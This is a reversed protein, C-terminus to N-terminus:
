RTRLFAEIRAGFPGRRDVPLDNHGYGEAVILQTPGAFAAGLQEGHRLPVIRDQDGHLILVPVRVRGALGLNDFDHRLFWGIPLWPYRERGAQAISVPPARLILRDVHGAAALHVACFSGLSSGAATVPLGPALERARRVAAEAAAFFAAKGPAGDSDGYGPFEVAVAHQGYAAWRVAWAVGSRLDEGNGGFSVVVGAADPGSDAVAVRFTGGDPLELREIGVRDAVEVPVGRGWSRGVFIMQDQLVWFLAVVSAYLALALALWFMVRRRFPM